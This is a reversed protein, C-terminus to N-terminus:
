KYHLYEPGRKAKSGSVSQMTVARERYDSGEM